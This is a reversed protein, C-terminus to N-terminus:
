EQSLLKHCFTKGRSLDRQVALPLLIKPTEFRKAVFKQWWFCENLIRQLSRRTVNESRFELSNMRAFTQPLVNQFAWFKTAERPEVLDKTHCLMKGCAKAVLIFANSSREFNRESFTVLRLRWRIRLSHKQHCFCTAFHQWLMGCGNAM